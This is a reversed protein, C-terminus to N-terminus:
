GETQAQQVSSEDTNNPENTQEPIPPVTEKLDRYVSIPVTITSVFVGPSKILEEDFPSECSPLGFYLRSGDVDIGKHRFITLFQQVTNLRDDLEPANQNNRLKWALIFRFTYADEVLQANVDVSAISATALAVWFTPRDTQALEEFDEIAAYQKRIDCGPFLQFIYSILADWTQTPTM